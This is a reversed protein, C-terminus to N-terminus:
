PHGLCIPPPCAQDQSQLAAVLLTAPQPGTSLHYHSFYLYASEGADLTTEGIGDGDADAIFDWAALEGDANFERTVATGQDLRATVTVSGSDVYILVSAVYCGDITASNPDMSLKSLKLNIGGPINTDTLADDLERHVQVASLGAPNIAVSAPSILTGAPCTVVSM